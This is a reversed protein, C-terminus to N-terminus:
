DNFGDIAIPVLPSGSNERPSIMPTVKEEVSVGLILSVSGVVVGLFTGYAAIQVATWSIVEFALLFTPLAGLIAALGAVIRSANVVPRPQLAEKITNDDTM